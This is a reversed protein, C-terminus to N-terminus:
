MSWTLEQHHYVGGVGQGPLLVEGVVHELHATQLHIDCLYNKSSLGLSKDAPYTTVFM